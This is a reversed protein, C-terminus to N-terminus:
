KEELTEQISKFQELADQLNETIEVVLAEPEPLNGLQELSQDQDIIHRSSSLHAL